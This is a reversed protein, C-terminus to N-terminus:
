KSLTWRNDPINKCPEIFFFFGIIILTTWRYFLTHIILFSTRWTKSLEHKNQRPEMGIKVQSVIDGDSM